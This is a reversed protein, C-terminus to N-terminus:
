TSEAERIGLDTLRVELAEENEFVLWGAKVLAKAMTYADKLQVGRKGTIPEDTLYITVDTPDGDDGAFNRAADYIKRLAERRPRFVVAVREQNLM